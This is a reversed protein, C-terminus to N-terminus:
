AQLYLDLDVAEVKRLKKLNNLARAYVLFIVQLMFVLMQLSLLARGTLRKVKGISKASAVLIPLFFLFYVHCSSGVTGTDYQLCTRAHMCSHMHIHAHTSHIPTHTHAQSHIPTFSHAHPHTCTLIHACMHFLTNPHTGVGGSSCM